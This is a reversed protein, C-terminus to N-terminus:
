DLIKPCPTSNLPTGCAHALNSQQDIDIGTLIKGDSQQDIDIDTLIV